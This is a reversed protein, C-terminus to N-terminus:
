EDKKVGPLPETGDIEGLLAGLDSAQGTEKDLNFAKREMEVWEKTSGTVKKLADSISENRGLFPIEVQVGSDTEAIMVQKCEGQILLLLKATIASSIQRLKAIEQRHELIINANTAALVDVSATQTLVQMTKTRIEETRDIADLDWGERKILRNLNPLTMGFKEAIQTKTFRKLGLETYIAKKDADSLRRQTDRRRSRSPDNAAM